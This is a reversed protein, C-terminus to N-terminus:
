ARGTCPRANQNRCFVNAQPILGFTTLIPDMSCSASLLSRQPLMRIDLSLPPFTTLFRPAAPSHGAGARQQRPSLEDNFIAVTYKHSQKCDILEKLKGKGLYYLSSPNEVKQTLKGVIQAGATKALQSLEALSSEISWDINKGKIEVGVLFALDPQIETTLFSKRDAM